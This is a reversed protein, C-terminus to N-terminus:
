VMDQAVGLYTIAVNNYVYYDASSYVNIAGGQNQYCRITVANGQNLALSDSGSLLLYETTTAEMTHRDLASTLVGDVYIVLQYITGIGLSVSDLLLSAKIEYVGPFRVTYTFPATSTVEGPAYDYLVQDYNLSTYANNTLSQSDNAYKVRPLAIDIHIKDAEGADRPLLGNRLNIIRRNAIFKGDREIYTFSEM